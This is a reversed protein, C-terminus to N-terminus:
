NNLFVKDHHGGNRRYRIYLYLPILTALFTLTLSLFGFKYSTIQIIYGMGFGAASAVISEIQNRTSLLTAKFKSGRIIEVLFGEDVKSLGWQTANSIILVIVVVYVNSTFSLIGFLITYLLIQLKMFSYITLNSKIKGTYALIISALARGIGFFVGFWIVPIELFVMYAGRYTGTILLLGFLIGSFLSFALFHLRYGENIVQRFNTTSIEEIETSTVPPKTLSIAAFLGVLDFILSILFPAKYGYMVLFPIFVTFIIPVAFGISSVKGMIKSYDREKGLARLTDHMFASGTGSLFAHSASFMVGGAILYSLNDAFFFIASSALMLIRSVVLAEKHGLKDSIYGSPVELLLGSLNSILLILGLDKATVDPISLYFASLIAAYIRKNTILLLTYKWVNAELRVNLSSM